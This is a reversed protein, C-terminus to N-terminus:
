NVGDEPSPSNDECRFFINAAYKQVLIVSARKRSHATTKENFISDEGYFILAM